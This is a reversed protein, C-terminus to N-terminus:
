NRRMCESTSRRVVTSATGAIKRSRATSQTIHSLVRMLVYSCCLQACAPSTRSVKTAIWWKRLRTQLLHRMCDLCYWKDADWPGEADVDMDCVQELFDNWNFTMVGSHPDLRQIHARLQNTEHGNMPLRGDLMHALNGVSLFGRLLHWDSGTFKNTLM